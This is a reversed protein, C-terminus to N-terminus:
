NLIFNQKKRLTVIDGAAKDKLARKVTSLSCGLSEALEEKSSFIMENGDADILKIEKSPRGKKIMVEEGTEEDLRYGKRIPMKTRCMASFADIDVETFHVTRYEYSDTKLNYRMFRSKESHVKYGLEEISKVKNPYIYFKLRQKKNNRKCIAYIYPNEVQEVMEFCAPNVDDKQLRGQKILSETFTIADRAQNIEAQNLLVKKSYIASTDTIFYPGYSWHYIEENVNNELLEEDDYMQITNIIIDDFFGKAYEDFDRLPINNYRVTERSVDGEVEAIIREVDFKNYDFVTMM